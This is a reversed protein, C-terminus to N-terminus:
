LMGEGAFTYCGHLICDQLMIGKESFVVCLQLIFSPYFPSCCLGAHNAMVQKMYFCLPHVLPALILLYIVTTRKKM